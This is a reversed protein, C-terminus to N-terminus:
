FNCGETNSADLVMTGNTGWQKTFDDMPTLTKQDDSVTFSFVGNSSLKIVWVGDDLTATYEARAIGEVVAKGDACLRMENLMGSGTSSYNGYTWGQDAAAVTCIGSAALGAAIACFHIIRM